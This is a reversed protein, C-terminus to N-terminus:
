PPPRGLQVVAQQVVLRAQFARGQLPQAEIEGLPQLRRERAQRAHHDRARGDALAARQHELLDTARGTEADTVRFGAPRYATFASLRQDRDKDSDGPIVAKGTAVVAKGGMKAAGVVPAPSASGTGAV